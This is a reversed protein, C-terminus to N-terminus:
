TAEASRAAGLSSAPAARRLVATAIAAALADCDYPKRLSVGYHFAAPLESPVYGTSVVFPIADENLRAAVVEAPVGRLCADLVVISPRTRELQHLAESITEARLIRGYGLEILMDEILCAVLPEDEVVVAVGNRAPAPRSDVPHFLGDM